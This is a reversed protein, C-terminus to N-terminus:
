EVTTPGASPHLPCTWRRQCLDIRPGLNQNNEGFIQQNKGLRLSSMQVLPCLTLTIQLTLATGTHSNVCDTDIFTQGKKEDSVPAERGEVWCCWEGLSLVPRHM